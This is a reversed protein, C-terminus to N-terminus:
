PHKFRFISQSENCSGGKNLRAWKGCKLKQSINWLIEKECGTKMSVNPECNVGEQSTLVQSQVAPNAHPKLQSKIFYASRCKQIIISEYKFFHLWKNVLFFWTQHHHVCVKLAILNSSKKKFIVFARWKSFGGTKM